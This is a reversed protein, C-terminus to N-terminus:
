NSDEKKEEEEDDNDDLKTNKFPKKRWSLEVKDPIM